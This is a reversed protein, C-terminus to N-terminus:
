LVIVQFSVFLRLESAFRGPLPVEEDDLESIMRLQVNISSILGVLNSYCSSDTRTVNEEVPNHHLLLKSSDLLHEKVGLGADDISEM